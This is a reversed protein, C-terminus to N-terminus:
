VDDSHDKRILNYGSLNLRSDSELYSSDLYTESLFILDHNYISNYSALLSLKSFSHAPLSNVIWYCVSFNNTKDKKPWPNQHVDGSLLLLILILCLFSSQNFGSSIDSFSSINRFAKSGNFIGVLLRWIVLNVPM